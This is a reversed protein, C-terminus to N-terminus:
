EFITMNNDDIFIAQNNTLCIKEDNVIKGNSTGVDCHVDLVNKIIVISNCVIVWFILFIAMM